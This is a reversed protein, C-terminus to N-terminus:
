WGYRRIPGTRGIVEDGEGRGHSWGEIQEEYAEDGLYDRLLSELLKKGEDSLDDMQMLDRAMEYAQSGMFDNPDYDSGHMKKMEMEHMLEALATQHQQDLLKWEDQFLMSAAQMKEQVNQHRWDQYASAVDRGTQQYIDGAMGGTVGSQAMGRGAMMEGLQRLSADRQAEIQEQMPDFSAGEGGLAQELLSAADSGERGFTDPEPPPPVPGLANVGGQYSTGWGPEDMGSSGRGWNPDDLPYPDGEGFVSTPPPPPGGDGGPPPMHQKWWPDPREQPPRSRNGQGQPYPDDYPM